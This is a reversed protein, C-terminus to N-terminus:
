MPAIGSGQSPFECLPAVSCTKKVKDYVAAVYEYQSWYLM